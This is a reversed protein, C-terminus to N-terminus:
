DKSDIFKSATKRLWRNMLGPAIAQVTDMAHGTLIGVLAGAIACTWVQNLMLFREAVAASAVASILAEFLGSVVADHDKMSSWISGVVGGAIAFLYGTQFFDHM